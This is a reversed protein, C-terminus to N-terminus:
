VISRSVSSTNIYHTEDQRPAIATPTVQQGMRTTTLANHLQDCKVSM